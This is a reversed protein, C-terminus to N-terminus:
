LYIFRVKEGRFNEGIFIRELPVVGYQKKLWKELYKYETNSCDGIICFCVDNMEVEFNNYQYKKYLSERIRKNPINLVDKGLYKVM